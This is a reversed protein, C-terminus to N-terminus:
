ELDHERVKLVPGFYVSDINGTIYTADFVSTDFERVDSHKEDYLRKRCIM